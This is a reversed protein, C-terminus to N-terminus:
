ISHRMIEQQELSRFIKRVLLFILQQFELVLLPVRCHVSARLRVVTGCTSQREWRQIAEKLYGTQTNPGGFFVGGCIM